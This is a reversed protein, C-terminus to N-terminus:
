SGKYACTPSKFRTENGARDRAYIKLIYCHDGPARVSTCNGSWSHTHTFSNAGITIDRYLLNDDDFTSDYGWFDGVSDLGSKNDTVKYKGQVGDAGGCAKGIPGSKMEIVPPDKDIYVNVTCDEKNGAKDKIQITGTETTTTFKKSFSSHECPSGGDADCDVKPTVDNGTWTTNENHKTGCKPKSKDIKIHQANSAGSTAGSKSVARFFIYYDGESSINQAKRIHGSPLTKTRNENKGYDNYHNKLDKTRGGFANILDSHYYHYVAIDVGDPAGSTNNSLNSWSCGDSKNDSKKCYQYRDIGAGSTSETTIWVIRNSNDWDHSGTITPATPANYEITITSDSYATCNGVADCARYGVTSTGEQTVNYSSGNIDDRDGTAGRTRYQYYVGGSESDTASNAQTIIKKDTWGSTYESLGSLSSPTTSNNKWKAKKTKMNSPATNDVYVNFECNASNGANDQMSLSKTRMTTSYTVEGPQSTKVGSLADSFTTKIKRSGKVWQDSAGVNSCTPPTKDLPVKVTVTSTHNTQDTMSMKGVRYGDASLSVTFVHKKDVGIEGQSTSHGGNLTNVNSDSSKLGATNWEWDIQKVGSLDEYTAEFLVGYPYDTKNFWNTSVVLTQNPHANNATIEKIVTNNEKGGSSSRKYAKVTVTPYDKDIKVPVTCNRSNGNRDQIKITDEEASQTFEKTFRERACGVGNNDLCNISITRNGSTWETSAGQIDTGCTPKGSNGSDSYDKVKSETKSLGKASVGTVTVKINAPTYENLKITKSVTKGKHMEFQESNFVVKSDAYIKYNYSAIGNENETITFNAKADGAGGTLHIDIDFDEADTVEPSSWSTCKLYPTYYYENDYYFIQVFSSKEDCSKKKYDKVTGLYKKDALDKLSIYTTQGNVKPLYQKNKEAYNRAAAVMSSEQSSYYNDHAKKMLSQIATVSITTLIGLIVIVGLLEVMTFGKKTKLRKLERRRM